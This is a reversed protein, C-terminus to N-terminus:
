GTSGFDAFRKTPFVIPLKHRHYEYHCGFFVMCLEPCSEGCPSVDMSVLYIRAVIPLVFKVSSRFTRFSSPIKPRGRMWALEQSRSFCWGALPVCNFLDVADITM